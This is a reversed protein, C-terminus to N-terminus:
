LSATSHNRSKWSRGSRGGCLLPASGPGSNTFHCVRSTKRSGAHRGRGAAARSRTPQQSASGGQRQLAARSRRSPRMTHPTCKRGEFFWALASPDLVHGFLGLARGATREFRGRVAAHPAAVPVPRTTSLARSVEHARRECAKADLSADILFRVLGDAGSPEGLARKVSDANTAALWAYRFPFTPHGSIRYRPTEGSWLSGTMLTSRTASRTPLEVLRRRGPPGRCHVLRPGCPQHRTYRQDARREDANPAQLSLSVSARCTAAAIQRVSKPTSRRLEVM